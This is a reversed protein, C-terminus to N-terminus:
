RVDRVPYFTYELSGANNYVRYGFQDVANPTGTLVAALGNPWKAGAPPAWTRGGTADQVFILLGERAYGAPPGNTFATSSVNGSLAIYADDLTALDVTLAGAVPAVTVRKKARYIPDLRADANLPAVGSAAGKTSAAIAGLTALMTAADPDDLLARAAATFDTLAVTDTGTSYAIKNASRTLAVLNTLYAALPQKQALANATTAAFNPDDGLAAALENLADLAGPASGVLNAIAAALAAMTALQNSNTGLPATPATPVGTFAPDALPAKADLAAQQLASVPKDVDATNDVNGLGIDAATLNAVAEQAAQAAGQAATAAQQADEAAEGAAEVAAQSAVDEGIDSERLYPNTPAPPPLNDQLDALDVEDADYPVALLGSRGGNWHEQVLYSIGNPSLDPDNSAPLELGEPVRGDSDLTIMMVRPVLETDGIVAAVQLRLSIQGGAVPAGDDRYKYYRRFIPIQALEAPFGM